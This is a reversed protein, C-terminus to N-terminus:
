RIMRYGRPMGPDAGNASRYILFGALETGWTYPSDFGAEGRPIWRTQSGNPEVVLSRDQEDVFLTRGPAAISPEFTGPILVTPFLLDIAYM